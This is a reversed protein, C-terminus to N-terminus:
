LRGNDGDRVVRKFGALRRTKSASPMESELLTTLDEGERGTDSICELMCVTVGVLDDRSAFPYSM